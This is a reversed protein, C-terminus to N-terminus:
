KVFQPLLPQDLTRHRDFRVGFAVGEWEEFTGIWDDQVETSRSLLSLQAM